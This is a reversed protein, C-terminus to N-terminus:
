LILFSISYKEIITVWISNKEFIQGFDFKKSIEFFDFKLWLQSWFRFNEFIIVVIM